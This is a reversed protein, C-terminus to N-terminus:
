KNYTGNVKEDKDKFCSAVKASSMEVGNKPLVVEPDIFRDYDEIEDAEPIIPEENDNNDM